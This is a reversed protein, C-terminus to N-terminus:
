LAPRQEPSPHAAPRRARRAVLWSLLLVGATDAAFDSLTSSRHPSLGQALEELGAVSLVLVPALRPEPACRLLPRHALAGDLSAALLGFLLAHCLLDAHLFGLDRPLVDLYAGFSAAVVLALVAGFALLFRRPTTM